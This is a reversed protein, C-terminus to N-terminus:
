KPFRSRSPAQLSWKSKPRPLGITQSPTSNNNYVLTLDQELLAVKVASRAHIAALIIRILEQFLILAPMSELISGIEAKIVQSSKERHIEMEYEEDIHDKPSRVVANPRLPSTKGRQESNCRVNHFVSIEAVRSKV